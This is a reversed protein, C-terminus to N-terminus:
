FAGIRGMWHVSIAVTLHSMLAGIHLYNDGSARGATTLANTSEARSADGLGVSLACIAAFSVLGPKATISTMFRGTHLWLEEEVVGTCQRTAM